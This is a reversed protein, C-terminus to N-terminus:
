GVHFVTEREGQLRIDFRLSHPARVAVLTGRRGPPVARLVPDALLRREEAPLYIRTMLGALLGRAFLWVALHPAEDSPTEAAIRETPVVFSFGGEADTHCRALERGDWLELLADAVGKEAGDLVRGSLLDGQRLGGFTGPAPCALAVHFFPGITQSPTHAPPVSM